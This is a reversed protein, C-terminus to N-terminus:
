AMSTLNRTDTAPEKGLTLLDFLDDLVSEGLRIKRQVRIVTSVSSGEFGPQRLDGNVAAVIMQPAGAAPRFLAEAIDFLACSREGGTSTSVRKTDRSRAAFSRARKLSSSRSTSVRSSTSPKETASIASAVFQDIEFTF